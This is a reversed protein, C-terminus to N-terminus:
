QTRGEGNALMAVASAAVPGLGERHALIREKMRPDWYKVLHDATAEAAEREGLTAFNRAIQNAMYVLKEQTTM